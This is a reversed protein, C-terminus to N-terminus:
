KFDVLTIDCELIANPPISPPVGVPGFALSSPIYLIIRGGKTILTLGIQWGIIHDKLPRNDFSTPLNQSSEIVKDYGFLSRTYVISPISTPKITDRGNGPEIIKYGIGSQHYLVGSDQGKAKLRYKIFETEKLLDMFVADASLDQTKACSGLLVALCCALLLHLHFSQKNIM